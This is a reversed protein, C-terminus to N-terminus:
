INRKRAFYRLHGEKRKKRQIPAQEERLTAFLRHFVDHSFGELVYSIVSFLRYSLLYRSYLCCCIVYSRVM